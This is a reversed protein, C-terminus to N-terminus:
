LVDAINQSVHRFLPWAVAVILVTGIAAVAVLGLDPNVGRVMVARFGEVLGVMPNIRYVDRGVEPVQSLPYMVPSLLMWLQMLLPVAFLVDQTIAGLAAVLMGVGIALAAGLVVLIPVWLLSLSFPTHFWIMMAFLLVFSAAADTLATLVAAVPFVERAVAVKKIIGANATLSSGCRGIASAVFSWFVMGSYAFLVYPIDESSIKLVGQIFVFIATYFVPPLVTWFLGLFSRRYRGKVERVFLARVLNVFRSTGASPNIRMEITPRLSDM